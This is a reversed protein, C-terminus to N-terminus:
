EVPCLLDLQAQQGIPCFSSGVSTDVRECIMKFVEGRGFLFVGRAPNPLGCERGYNETLVLCLLSSM